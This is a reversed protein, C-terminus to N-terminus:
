WLDVGICALVCKLSHSLNNGDKEDRQIKDGHDDGSTNIFEGPNEKKDNQDNIEDQSRDNDNQPDNSHLFVIWTCIVSHQM